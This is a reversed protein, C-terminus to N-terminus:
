SRPAHGRGAGGAYPTKRGEVRTAVVGSSRYQSPSVGEVARFARSFSHVTGFGVRVAIETFNLDSGVMLQKAKHIRARRLYERPTCGFHMGFLRRFYSVSMRCFAALEEFRIEEACHMRMYDAAEELLPVHECYAASLGAQGRLLEAFVELLLGSLRLCAYPQARAAETCIEQVLDGVRRNTYARVRGCLQGLSSHGMDPHMLPRLEELDTMGGPISFDWHSVEPRYILDFHVYPCVMSPPDGEMAHETDPPIWFLDNVRAEYVVGGVEFRGTGEAIYVLLYDLLKRRALRWAPRRADGCHRVYPRLAALLEVGPSLGPM